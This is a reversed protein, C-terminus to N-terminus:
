KAISYAVLEKDNRVFFTRNSFAPYCWVVARGFSENTPELVHYRGIEQYKEPSLKAIIFDGTESFIYHKDGAKTVFATGHNVRGDINATPDKTAWMREGDSARACIFEGSGCDSGYIYGDDIVPTGNAAYLATKVKGTWLEDVGSGDPKLQLMAATEGIGSVFLKDGDVVPPIISMGYKPAIPYAWIEKGTEPVLGHLAKPEWLLLQTQDRIHVIKPPCYGIETQSLARWREAGTKKDFAVVLSGEGGALTYVLDQYVTPSASYGWVPSETKYDDRLMRSWVVKGTGAELCLFDGEAGLIYVLEGDVTPAARPGSPYSLYYDREYKHTWVLKGTKADFCHIRETGTLKDRGGANNTSRGSTLEYDTVFVRGGEVAPGSYGLGVPMSWLKKLGGEPISDITDSESYTGNGLPGNWRPWDDAALPSYLATFLLLFSFREAPVRQKRFFIM